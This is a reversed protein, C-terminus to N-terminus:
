IQGCTVTFSLTFPHKRCESLISIPFLTTADARKPSMFPANEM